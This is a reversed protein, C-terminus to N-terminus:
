PADSAAENDSDQEGLAEDLSIEKGAKDVWHVDINGDVAVFITCGKPCGGSHVRHGPNFYYGGPRLHMLRSDKHLMDMTGSVVLIQESATHWHWPIRCDATIKELVTFPGKNPDGRLVAGTICTPLGQFPAFKLEDGDVGLAHSASEDARAHNRLLPSINTAIVVALLASLRKM